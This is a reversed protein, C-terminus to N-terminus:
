LVADVHRETLVAVIIDDLSRLFREGLWLALIQGEYVHQRGGAVLTRDIGVVDGVDATMADRMFTHIIAGFLRDAEHLVAGEDVAVFADLASAAALHAGVARDDLDVAGAHAGTADTRDADALIALRLDIMGFAHGAAGTAVGAGEARDVLAAIDHADNLADLIILLDDGEYRGRDDTLVADFILM